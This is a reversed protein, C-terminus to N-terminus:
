FSTVGWAFLLFVLLFVHPIVLLFRFGVSLRDRAGAPDEVTLTAPYPAEGFPPYPDELLMLYALARVRWRMYFATFQGIGIVHQGTLVITFWSIVALVFAVAGLLGTEGGFSERRTNGAFSFGIGGVLIIHPIALIVRFATTLRNRNTLSPQVDVSVPYPM